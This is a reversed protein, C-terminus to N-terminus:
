SAAEMANRVTEAIETVSGAFAEVKNKLVAYKPILANGKRPDDVDLPRYFDAVRNIKGKCEVFRDDGLARIARTPIQFWIYQASLHALPIFDEDVRV